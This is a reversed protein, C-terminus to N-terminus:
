TYVYANIRVNCLGFTRISLNISESRFTRQEFILGSVSKPEVDNEDPGTNFPERLEKYYLAVAERWGMKWEDTSPKNSHSWVYGMMM